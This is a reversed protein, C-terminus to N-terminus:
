EQSAAKLGANYAEVIAKYREGTMPGSEAAAVDKTKSFLKDDAANKTAIARENKETQVAVAARFLPTVDRCPCTALDITRVIDSIVKAGDATMQYGTLAKRRLGCIATYTTAPDLAKDFTPVAIAPVLIAAQSITQAFSEELFASDRAKHADATGPPAEEKLEGEIEKNAPEKAAEDKAEHGKKFEEFSDGLKKIAESTDKMFGHFAENKENDDFFKTKAGFDESGDDHASTVREEGTEPLGGEPKTTEPDGGLHLHIHTDEKNGTKSLVSESEAAVDKVAADFAKADNAKFANVIADLWSPKQMAADTTNQQMAPSLTVTQLVEQVSWLNLPLHDKTACVPGCRGREVFAVHNGIIQCQYAEGPGRIEYRAGYGCSLEQRPNEEAMKIADPHKVHLDALLLHDEVGVGRRVNQVHGVTLHKWNEPMVDEPPHTIVIDKGEFSAITEPRFVEGEERYVRIKGDPGPPVNLETQDYIQMGTRAIRSGECVLWGEPTKRRNPSLEVPTFYQKVDSM